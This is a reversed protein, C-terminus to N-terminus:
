GRSSLDFNVIERILLLASASLAALRMAAPRAAQEDLELVVPEAGAEDPPLADPAGADDPEPLGVPSTTM